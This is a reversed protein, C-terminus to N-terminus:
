FETHLDECTEGLYIGIVRKRDKKVHWIWGGTKAEEKKMIYIMTGHIFDANKYVDKEKHCVINVLNGDSTFLVALDNKYIHIDLEEDDDSSM